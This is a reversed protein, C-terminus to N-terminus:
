VVFSDANGRRERAPSAAADALGAVARELQEVPLTFPLRLYRELVGASGFRPGPTVHVGHERARNAIATSGPRPLEVWLALGGPPLDFRWDPLRERLARALADRRLLAGARREEVLRDLEALVRVAVLQDLVPTGVDIAARVQALRQVVDPQARVWGVRLGGWFSKSLSGVTLVRRDFSAFPSPPEQGDLALEVFTEDAVVRWELRSLERALRRRAPADMVAGTPNQFDPVLYALSPQQRGAAALLADVDWVPVGRPRLGAAEFVDLAVPYTPVEVLATRGRRGYARVLLDLAQLAGNSVLVQEPRTPLGRETFRRAIADRLPPLGLPEYGHRDLWRALDGTADAVLEQLRAPAAPAAVRLDLGGVPVFADDAGRASAPVSAYSGAGRRSHLYGDARLRNYAKTVTTRSVGLAVAAVREAPLPSELPIRGDLILGRLASALEEQAPRSGRWGGLLEVLRAPTV